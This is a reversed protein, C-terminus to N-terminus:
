QAAGRSRSRWQALAAVALSGTFAGAADVLWDFPDPTRLPVFAQHLEDTAAWAAALSVALVIRESITSATGELSRIILAALVLYETFHAVTGFRGPM